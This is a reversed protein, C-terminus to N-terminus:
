SFSLWDIDEKPRFGRSRVDLLHRMTPRGHPCNWPQDMTGMHRIVPQATLKLRSGQGAPADQDIEVEFGNQQLIEINEIATLEDSATLELPRSRFLKQSEIRTTAQLTEFNYKEDAAHQDVIFLDDLRQSSQAESEDMEPRKDSQRRVVIFGLNFQGVVVMTDFDKKEIVRALANAAREDDTNSLSADLPVSVSPQEMADRLDSIGKRTSKDSWFNKIREFDFKLRIDGGNQEGKIVEIQPITNPPSVTSLDSDVPSGRVQDLLTTVDSSDNDDGVDKPGSDTRNPWSVNSGDVESVDPSVDLSEAPEDEEVDVLNEAEIRGRAVRGVIEMEDEEDEELQDEEEQDVDIVAALSKGSSSAVRSGSRAFGALQIRLSQSAKQSATAFKPRSVKTAVSPIGIVTNDLSSQVPLTRSPRLGIPPSPPVDLDDTLLSHVLTLGLDSKRKSIGEDDSDEVPHQSSNSVPQSRPSATLRRGWSTQSTDLVINDGHSNIVEDEDDVEMPVDAPHFEEEDFPSISRQIGAHDLYDPDPRDVPQSSGSADDGDQHHTTSKRKNTPKLSTPEQTRPLLTQTLTKSHTQTQGELDYTARSPAFHTELALKLASILNGESHLLITRKDPSVNVDYTETPLIFDAVIFPAQTANFSRYVENFTKQIAFKSILGKVQVSFADLQQGQLRKLAIKEREVEFSLDIDVINDLAKTGWLAMVSDRGSPSGLTQIQVSKPGKDPQNSVTLRIAPSGACPGLAYANLLALAKGFERKINRELEKRRVALPSFINTLTVTTGQKRAAKSTKKIQGSGDLVLLTGMPVTAATATCVTVQESLACLSSLAEGRFGFTHVSLLDSFTELKSTRHKLAISEHDEESIGCGNDIVEITSLGYNKFRVEINTAGGDLSNEVLEKVATQLDVVVQGSTIHHISAKDIAKISM